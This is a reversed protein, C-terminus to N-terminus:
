QRNNFLARILDNQPFRRYAEIVIPNAEAKKNQLWLGNILNIYAEALNSDLAIAKQSMEISQELKGQRGYLYGLQYAARSKIGTDAGYSTSYGFANDDTEIASPGSNTVKNLFYEARSPDNWQSYILGAELYLRLDAAQNLEAEAMKAKVGVSDGLQYRSRIAMLYADPSYPKIEIARDALALASDYSGKLYEVSALNILAKSELPNLKLERDFYYQASDINGEKLFAVGLNLNAEPYDSYTELLQHYLDRAKTYDNRYLYFNAQNFYGSELDNRRIKYLNSFSLLFIIVGFLSFGIGQWYQKKRYLIGILAIIGGAAWIIFIPVVPWRFRANIFFLSILLFYVIIFILLFKNENNLDRRLFSALIFILAFALIIAFNLPIYKTVPNAAFFLPLNRNNSIEYNNFCFYLKKMYLKFFDSPNDKIWNWGKKLWFDSLEADSLGRGIEKEALYRIDRIQWNAGLPAPLTASLGDADPNNGIYFNIGGSSAILVPEGGVAFNRITVPAIIIITGVLMLSM